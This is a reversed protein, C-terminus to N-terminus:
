GQAARAQGVVRYMRFPSNPESQEVLWDPLENKPFLRVFSDPAADGFGRMEPMAPCIVVLSIGRNILIQRAGAIPQNFFDFTARVGEENRHYPAAAVSHGTYLLMHSGLDVPTMLRQPPMANLSAFSEPMLCTNKGPDPPGSAAPPPPASAQIVANIAVATVLGAFSVYGFVIGLAGALQHRGLFATRALVILYAGAPVAFAATFRAGRIQLIMVAIAVALYIGYAIWESRHERKSIVRILVVIAAVLPPVAVSAVYAPIDRFSGWITKAEAIYAIWNRVLWEDVAAYPGKLVCDPFAVFLGGAVVVGLVAGALLRLFPHRNSLPLASLVMFAVSVAVALAVYVISLADCAQELWRQPPLAILLHVLASLGFGLGFLRLSTRQRGDLVWLVGFALIAAAVTPLGETGIALSTACLIGVWLAFRPRRCAELTCWLMAMALTIQVSHHDMRGPAFEAVMAPSLAPLVLGPFVGARGALQFAAKASTVVLGLLMLIPWLYAAVIDAQSGAFPRALLIFAAIPVDVLRSWHIEAGFPTNLRHQIHDYWNQGALFDHVVVLRMADDTDAFLPAGSGAVASRVIMFISVGIWGLLVLLWPFGSREPTTKELM